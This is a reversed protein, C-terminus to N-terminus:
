PCKKRWSPVASARGCYLNARLRQLEVGRVIDPGIAKALAKRLVNAASDLDPVARDPHRQIPHRSLSKLITDRLRPLQRVVIQRDLSKPIRLTVLINIYAGTAGNRMFPAPM